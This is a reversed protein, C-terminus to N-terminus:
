GFRSRARELMGPIQELRKGFWSYSVAEHVCIVDAWAAVRDRDYGAAALVSEWHMMRSWDDAKLAWMAADFSGDGVAGKPDCAVLRQSPGQLLNGPHLDAHVLQPVNPGSADLETVLAKAREIHPQTLGKLPRADLRSAAKDLRAHVDVQLSPLASHAPAPVHILRLLGAVAVDEVPQVCEAGSWVTALAGPRYAHVAVLAQSGSWALLAAHERELESLDFALKVVIRQSDRTECLMILARTGSKLNAVPKIEWLECLEQLARPLSQLWKQCLGAGLAREAALIAGPAPILDMLAM